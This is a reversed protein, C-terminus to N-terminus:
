QELREALRQLKEQKKSEFLEFGNCYTDTIHTLMQDKMIDADALEEVLSELAPYMKKYKNPDKNVPSFIWSHTRTLKAAAHIVESCEEILMMLQLDYGWKSLAKRYLPVNKMYKEPITNSMKPKPKLDLFSMSKLFTM